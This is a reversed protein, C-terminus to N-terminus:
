APDSSPDPRLLDQINDKSVEANPFLRIILMLFLFYRYYGWSQTMSFAANKNPGQADMFFTPWFGRCPALRRLGALLISSMNKAAPQTQERSAFISTKQQHQQLSQSIKLTIFSTEFAEHAM